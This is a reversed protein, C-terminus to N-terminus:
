MGQTRIEAAVAEIFQRVADDKSGAVTWISYGEVRIDKTTVRGANSLEVRASIICVSDSSAGLGPRAGRFGMGAEYFDIRVQTGSSASPDQGSVMRRGSRELSQVLSSQLNGMDVDDFYYTFTVPFSLIISPDVVTNQRTNTTSPSLRHSTEWQLDILNTSAGADVSVIQVNSSVFAGRETDMVSACGVLAFLAVILLFHRAVMLPAGQPRLGRLTALPREFM